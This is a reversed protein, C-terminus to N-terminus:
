MRALAGRWAYKGYAAVAAKRTKYGGRNNAPSNFGAHGMTIYWGGSEAQKVPERCTTCHAANGCAPKLYDPTTPIM